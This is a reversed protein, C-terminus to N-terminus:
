EFLRGAKYVPSIIVYWGCVNGEWLYHLTELDRYATFGAPDNPTQSMQSANGYGNNCYYAITRM